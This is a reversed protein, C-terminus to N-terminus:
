LRLCAGDDGFMTDIDVCFVINKEKKKEEDDM